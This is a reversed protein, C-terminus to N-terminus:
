RAAQKKLEELVEAAHGGAKAVKPWAARVVGDPGILLTSRVVGEVTKGYMVKPQVAGLRTLVAKDPDSLLTITLNQKEAFKRHSALSDKSLGLVVAGLAEFEAKLATFELAELTCGSTSDKPYVYLAVWKGALDKLCVTGDTGELCIDPAPDGPKPFAGM